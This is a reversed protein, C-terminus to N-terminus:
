PEDGHWLRPAGESQGDWASAGPRQRHCWERARAHGHARRLLLLRPVRHAAGRRVRPGVPARGPRGGALQGREHAVRLDHHWPHGGGEAPLSGPWPGSLSDKATASRVFSPLFGLHQRPKSRVAFFMGQNSLGTQQADHVAIDALVANPLTGLVAIPIESPSPGTVM